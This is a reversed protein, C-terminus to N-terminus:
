GNEQGLYARIVAENQSIEAPPGEAIKQGFDLAVVHNSIDMVLGVDHEILLITTRRQEHIDLIFRAMDEKEEQNMGAMPEDLLLLEPELALARGLEVRKRLGYSLTGVISKRIAEMELFEIIEEVIVRHEIEERQAPGIFLAGTLMNSKMHLHRAAMLNDLATMNTYLAINQFTRSIGLQARKYPPLKTIDRGGFLIRGSQPKYFGNISNILSTKGAGNPGIVSVIEGERVDFSIHQLAKIGGFSLSVDDIHLKVSSM